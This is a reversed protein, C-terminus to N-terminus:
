APGVFSLTTPFTIKHVARNARYQVSSISHGSKRTLSICLVAQTANTAVSASMTASLNLSLTEGVSVTASASMTARTASASLLTMSGNLLNARASLTESASVSGSGELIITSSYFM